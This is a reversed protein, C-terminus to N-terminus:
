QWNVANLDYAYGPPWPDMARGLNKAYITM